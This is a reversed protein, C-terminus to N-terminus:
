EVNNSMIRGGFITSYRRITDFFQRIMDFLTSDTSYHRPVTQPPGGSSARSLGPHFTDLRVHLGSADLWFQGFISIRPSPRDLWLVHCFAHLGRIRPVICSLGHLLYTLLYSSSLETMTPKKLDIQYVLRLFIASFGWKQM